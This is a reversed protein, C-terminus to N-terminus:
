AAHGKRSENHDSDRPTNMDAPGFLSHTQMSQMLFGITQRASERVQPDDDSVSVEAVLRSLELLRAERILWLASRRHEGRPDQLMASLAGMAKDLRESLLVGIANARPRGAKDDWMTILKAIVTEDIPLALAEVANARVRGDHHDLARHVVDKAELTGVQGLAQVASSAIFLDSDQTMATLAKEYYGSQGLHTMISMAKLRHDRDEDLLRVSLRRHFQRDIKIMARGAIDRQEDTLNGWQDWMREFGIPALREGAMKRISEHPSVVLRALMLPLRASRTRILHWLAIRALHPEQDHLFTAALEDVEDQDSTEALEIVHRLVALRISADQHVSLRALQAVHQSRHLPLKLLVDPWLRLVAPPMMSLDHESPILKEADAVRALVSTVRPSLHLHALCLWDMRSQLLAMQRLVALSCAQLGEYNMLCFLARHVLTTRSQVMFRRLGHSLPSDGNALMTPLTQVRRPLLLLIAELIEPRQHHGYGGAADILATIVHQVDEPAVKPKNHEIDMALDRLAGAAEGRFRVPGDLTQEALLYSLRWARGQVIMQIVAQRMEPNSSQLARRMLSVMEPLSALVQSQCREPLRQYREILTYCADRDGRRLLCEVLLPMESAEATALAAALSRDVIIDDSSEFLGLIDRLKAM